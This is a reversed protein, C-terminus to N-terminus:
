EVPEKITLLMKGPFRHRLFTEALASGVQLWNRRELLFKSGVAVWVWFNAITLWCRQHWIVPSGSSSREKPLMKLFHQFSYNTIKGSFLNPLQCVGEQTHVRSRQMGYAWIGPTSSLVTESEQYVCALHIKSKAIEGKKM